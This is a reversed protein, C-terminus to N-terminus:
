ETTKKQAPASDITVSLNLDKPVIITSYQDNAFPFKAPPKKDDDKAEPAKVCKEMKADWVMGDECEKGKGDPKSDGDTEANKTAEMCKKLMPNWVMGDECEKADPDEAFPLKTPKDVCKGDVMHKGEPCDDPHLALKVADIYAALDHGHCNSCLKRSRLEDTILIGTQFLTSERQSLRANTSFRAGSTKVIENWMRSVLKWDEILSQDNLSQPSYYETETM